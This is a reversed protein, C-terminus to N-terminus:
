VAFLMLFGQGVYANHIVTYTLGFRCSLNQETIDNLSASEGDLMVLTATKDLGCVIWNESGPIVGIHNIQDFLELRETKIPVAKGLCKLNAYREKSVTSVPPTGSQGHAPHVSKSSAASKLM